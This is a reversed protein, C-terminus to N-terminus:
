FLQYKKKKRCRRYFILFRWLFFFFIWMINVGIPYIRLFHLKILHKVITNISLTKNKKKKGFRHPAIIFIIIRNRMTSTEPTKYLFSTTTHLILSTIPPYAVFYPFYLNTWTFCFKYRVLRNLRVNSSKYFLNDERTNKQLWATENHKRTKVCYFCPFGINKKKQKDIHYFCLFNTSLNYYLTIFGVLRIRYRILNFM